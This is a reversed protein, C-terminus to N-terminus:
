PRCRIGSHGRSPRSARPTVFNRSGRGAAAVRVEPEADRLAAAVRGAAHADGIQGLAVVAARRVSAAPDAILTGLADVAAPYRLRASRSPAPRGCAANRMSLTALLPAGARQDRIEGLSTVAALRVAAAATASPAPSYISPLRTASGASPACRPVGSTPTPTV